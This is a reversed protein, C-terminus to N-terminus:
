NERNRDADIAANTEALSVLPGDSCLVPLKRRRELWARGTKQLEAPKPVYALVAKQVIQTVSKGTAHALGAARAKTPTSRINLQATQKRPM